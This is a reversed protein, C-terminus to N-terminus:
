YWQQREPCMAFRQVHPVARIAGAAGAASSLEAQIWGEGPQVTLNPSWVKVANLQRLSKQRVKLLLPFKGPQSVVAMVAYERRLSPPLLERLWADEAEDVHCGQPVPLNEAAIRPPVARTEQFPIEDDSPTHHYEMTIGM